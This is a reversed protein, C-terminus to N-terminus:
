AHVSNRGAERRPMRMRVCTKGALPLIEVGYRRGYILQIRRHINYLGTHATDNEECQRLQEWAQLAEESFGKGGDVVDIQLVEDEISIALQVRKIKEADAGYKIANELVPQFLLKPIECALAEKAVTETFVLRKGFRYQQIEMYRHVYDLDEALMVQQLSNHISYRLLASLAMLMKVAATPNLKVMYKINELTNFLFHPNFQSVLQRMEAHSTLKEVMQARLRSERQVGRFILPILLLFFLVFLVFGMFSRELLGRVPTLALVRGGQLVTRQTVYYIELEAKALGGATECLRAQLKGQGDAPVAESAATVNYFSDTVALLVEAYGKDLLLREGPVVLLLYCRGVGALSVAQGRVFDQHRSDHRIFESHPLSDEQLRRLIGWDRSAMGAPLAAKSGLLMQGKDDLLYFDLPVESQNVADYFLGYLEASVTEDGVNQWLVAPKAELLQVLRGLLATSEEQITEVHRALQRSAMLNSQVVYHNLGYLFLIVSISGFLLAPLLAYKLLARRFEQQFNGM